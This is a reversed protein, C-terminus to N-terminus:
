KPEWLKGMMEETTAYRNLNNERSQRLAERSRKNPQRKPLYLEHVKHTNKQQIKMLRIKMDTEGM